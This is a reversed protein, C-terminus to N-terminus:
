GALWKTLSLHKCPQFAIQSLGDGGVAGGAKMGEKMDGGLLVSRHPPDKITRAVYNCLCPSSQMDKNQWREAMFTNGGNLGAVM